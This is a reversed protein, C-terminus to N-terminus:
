WCGTQGEGEVLMNNARGEVLLRNVGRGRSADQKGGGGTLVM